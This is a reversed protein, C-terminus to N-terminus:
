RYPFVELLFIQIEYDIDQLTKDKVEQEMAEALTKGYNKHKPDFFGFHDHRRGWKDKKGLSLGHKDAAMEIKEPSATKLFKDAKRLIEYYDKVYQEDRQGQLMKEIVPNRHTQRIQHKGKEDVQNPDSALVEDETKKMAIGVRMLMVHFSIFFKLIIKKVFRM